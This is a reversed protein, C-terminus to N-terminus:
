VGNPHCSGAPWGWLALVGAPPSYRCPSAGPETNSGAMGSDAAVWHGGSKKFFITYAGDDQSSVMADQSSPSPVLEGGAWYTQTAADFAYYTLGARLGTFDSPKLGRATAGAAVLEARIQDTIALNGVAPSAVPSSTVPAAPTGSASAAAGCATLTALSALVLAGANLRMRGADGIPGQRLM